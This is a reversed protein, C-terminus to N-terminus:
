IKSKTEQKIDHRIFTFQFIVNSLFMQQINLHSTSAWCDSVVKPPMQGLDETAGGPLEQRGTDQHKSRDDLEQTGRNAKWHGGTAVRQTWMTDVSDSSLALTRWRTECLPRSNARLSLPEWCHQWRDHHFCHVSAVDPSHKRTGWTVLLLWWWPWPSCYSARTTCTIGTTRVLFGRVPTGQWDQYSVGRSMSFNSPLLFEISTWSIAWKKPGRPGRLSGRIGTRGDRGM